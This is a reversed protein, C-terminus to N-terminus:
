PRALVRQTRGPQDPHLETLGGDGYDSVNIEDVGAGSRHPDQALPCPVALRWLRWEASRM